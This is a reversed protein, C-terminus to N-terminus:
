RGLCATKIEPDDIFAKSEGCKVIRGEEVLCCQDSNELAILVGQEVLLVAVGTRNIDHIAIILSDVVLPALGLSLEDIMLLQPRSMLGRGIACM